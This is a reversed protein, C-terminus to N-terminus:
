EIIETYKIMTEKVPEDPHNLFYKWDELDLELKVNGNSKELVKKIKDMTGCRKEFDKVLDKGKLEKIYTTEIM